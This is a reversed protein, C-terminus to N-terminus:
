QPLQIIRQERCARGITAEIHPALIREPSVKDNGLFRYTAELAAVSGAIEPFSDAPRRSIDDCLKVLRDNLREDGFDAKALEISVSSTTTDQM